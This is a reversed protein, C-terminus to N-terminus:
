RANSSGESPDAATPPHEANQPPVPNGSNETSFDEYACKLTTSKGCGCLVRIRVIREGERDIFLKPMQTDPHSCNDIPDSDQAAEQGRDPARYAPPVKSAKAFAHDGQKPPTPSNTSEPTVQTFEATENPRDSITFPEFSAPM